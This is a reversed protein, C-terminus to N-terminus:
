RPAPPLSGLILNMAEGNQVVDDNLYLQDRMTRAAERSLMWGLPLPVETDHLGFYVIDKTGLPMAETEGAKARRQEHAIARVAYIGRADRTNLLADPPALLDGLFETQTTVPASRQPRSPSPSPGPKAPAIALSGKRPDNTILIVKVDVNTIKEFRCEDKILLVIELATTAGSNEFYGGDVVHSGNPFRGAPSV